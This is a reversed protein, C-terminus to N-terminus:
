NAAEERGFWGAPRRGGSDVVLANSRYKAAQIGSDYDRAYLNRARTADGRTRPIRWTALVNPDYTEALAFIAHASGTEVARQLVDRAARIKGQGVLAKAHALLGAAVGRETAAAGASQRATEPDEKPQGEKEPPSPRLSEADDAAQNSWTEDSKGGVVDSTATEIRKARAAEEGTNPPTAVQADASQNQSQAAQTEIERGTGALESALASARAQATQVDEVAGAQELPAPPARPSNDPSAYVGRHQELLERCEMPFVLNGRATIGFPMCGGARTDHADKAASPETSSGSAKSQDNQAAQQSGRGVAADGEDRSETRLPPLSKSEESATKRGAGVVSSNSSRDLAIRDAGLENANPAGGANQSRSSAGYGITSPSAFWVVGAYGGGVMIGAALLFTLRARMM